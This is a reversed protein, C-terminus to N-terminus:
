LYCRSDSRFSGNTSRGSPTTKGSFPECPQCLFRREPWPSVRTRIGRMQWAITRRGSNAGPSHDPQRPKAPGTGGGRQILACATRNDAAIRDCPCRPDFGAHCCTPTRWAPAPRLRTDLPPSHHVRISNFVSIAHCGHDFDGLSIEFFLDEPARVGAPLRLDIPPRAATLSRRGPSYKGLHHVRGYGPGPAPFVQEQDYASGGAPSTSGATPELLGAAVQVQEHLEDVEPFSAM